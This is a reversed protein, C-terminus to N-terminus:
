QMRKQYLPKDNESAELREWGLKSDEADIEVPM